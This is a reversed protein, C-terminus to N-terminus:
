KQWLDIQDKVQKVIDDISHIKSFEIKFGKDQLLKAMKYLPPMEVALNSDLKSFIDLPKGEIFLKGNHIAYVYSCYGLVLRMDHTVLIISKGENHLKVLLDMVTKTGEPDLGATPEDLVLIDPNIALMGAIAVRRKEGGSLEFPSREYYSEDIGVLALAEKAKQNAEEQKVGYNKLGFAVDDLITEEFLQYEPFQFVLGIHKRLNKLGKNKKSEIHFEDVDISGSSPLLLANLHEVLTSKGSGTEGIIASFCHDNITLSVNDLALVKFPTKALYLHSLNNVKISM